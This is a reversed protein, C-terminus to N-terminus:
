FIVYTSSSIVGATEIELDIAADVDQGIYDAQVNYDDVNMYSNYGIVAGIPKHQTLQTDTWAYATKYPEIKINADFWEGWKPVNVRASDLQTDANFGLMACFNLTIVGATSTGASVGPAKPSRVRMRKINIATNGCFFATGGAKNGVVFFSLVTNQALSLVAARNNGTLTYTDPTGAVCNYKAQIKQAAM